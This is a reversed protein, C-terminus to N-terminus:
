YRESINRIEKYVAVLSRRAWELMPVDAKYKIFRILAQESRLVHEIQPRHRMRETTLKSQTRIEVLRRFKPSPAGGNEIKSVTAQSVGLWRAFAAQDYPKGTEPNVTRSRVETLNM